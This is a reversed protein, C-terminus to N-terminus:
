ALEEEAVEPMPQSKRYDRHEQHASMDMDV